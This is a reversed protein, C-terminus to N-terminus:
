ILNWHERWRLHLSAGLCVIITDNKWGQEWNFNLCCRLKCSGCLYHTIQTQCQRFYIWIQRLVWAILISDMLEVSSKIQLPKQGVVMNPMEWGFKIVPGTVFKKISQQGRPWVTVCWLARAYIRKFLCYRRRAAADFVFHFSDTYTHINVLYM